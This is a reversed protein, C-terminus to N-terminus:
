VDAATAEAATRSEDRRGYTLLLVVASVACLGGSFVFPLTFGNSEALWAALVPGVAGGAAWAANL